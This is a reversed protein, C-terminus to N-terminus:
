NIIVINREKKTKAKIEAIKEKTANILKKYKKTQEDYQQKTKKFKIELKKNLARRQLIKTNIKDNESELIKKSTEIKANLANQKKHKEQIQRCLENNQAQLADKRLKYTTIVKMLNELVEYGNCDNIPLIEGDDKSTEMDNQFLSKLNVSTGQIVYTNLDIKIQQVNIGNISYIYGNFNTQRCLPCVLEISSSNDSAHINVICYACIGHNCVALKIIPVICMDSEERFTFNSYCVNCTMTYGSLSKIVQITSDTSSDM